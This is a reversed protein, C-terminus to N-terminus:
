PLMYFRNVRFKPVRFKLRSLGLLTVLLCHLGLDSAANQRMQDPDVSNANFVPIEIFCIFLLFEGSVM